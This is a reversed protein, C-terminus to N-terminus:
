NTTSGGDGDEDADDEEEEEDDGVFPNDIQETGQMPCIYMISTGRCVVIGLKRTVQFIENTQENIVVKRKQKDDEDRVYERANDLVVNVMQDFGKLTGVVERGGSFKIIIEKDISKELNLIQERPKKQQQQQSSQQQQAPTTTTTTPTSATSM